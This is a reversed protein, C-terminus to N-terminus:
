RARQGNFQRRVAVVVGAIGLMRWTLRTKANATRADLEASGVMFQDPTVHHDTRVRNLSTRVIVVHAEAFFLTHGAARWQFQLVLQTLRGSITTKAPTIM